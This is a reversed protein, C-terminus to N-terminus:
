ANHSMPQLLNYSMPQLIYAKFLLFGAAVGAFVMAEGRVRTDLVALRPEAVVYFVALVGSFLCFWLISALSTVAPLLGLWSAWCRCYFGYSESYPGPPELALKEGLALCQKLRALQKPSKVRVRCLRLVVDQMIKAEFAPAVCSLQRPHGNTFNEGQCKHRAYARNFAAHAGQYLQQRQVKQSGSLSNSKQSWATVSALFANVDAQWALLVAAIVAYPLMALLVVRQAQRWVAASPPQIELVWASAKALVLLGLAALFLAANGASWLAWSSWAPVGTDSVQGGSSGATSPEESPLKVSHFSVAFFPSLFQELLWRAAEEGFGPPEPQAHGQRDRALAQAMLLLATGVLAVVSHVSCAWLFALLVSLPRPPM